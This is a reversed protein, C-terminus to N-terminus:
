KPSAIANLIEHVPSLLVTGVGRTSSYIRRRRKWATYTLLGVAVAKGRNLWRDESEWFYDVADDIINGKKDYNEDASQDKTNTNANTNANVEMLRKTTSEVASTICSHCESFRDDHVKQQEALDKLDLLTDQMSERLYVPLKGEECVIIAEVNRCLVEMSVQNPLPSMKEHNKTWMLCSEDIIQMYDDEDRQNNRVLTFIVDTISEVMRIDKLRPLTQVLILNLLESCHNYLLDDDDANDHDDDHSSRSRSRSEGDHFGQVPIPIADDYEYTHNLDIIGDLSKHEVDILVSLLELSSVLAAHYLGIAHCFHIYLASLELTMFQLSQHTGFESVREAEQEETTSRSTNHIRRARSGDFINLFPSLNLRVEDDIEISDHVISDSCTRTRTSRRKWLEYCSQIAIASAREVISTKENGQLNITISVSFMNGNDNGNGNGVADTATTSSVLNSLRVDYVLAHQSHSSSSFDSSSSLSLSKQNQNQDELIQNAQDLADQFDCLAFSTEAINIRELQSTSTSTSTSTRSARSASTEELVSERKLQHQHRNDFKEREVTKHQNKLPM